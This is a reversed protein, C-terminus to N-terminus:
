ANKFTERYAWKPIDTQLVGTGYAPWDNADTCEKWRNLAKRMIAQGEMIASPVLEHIATVFPYQPEIVIFLFGDIPGGGAKQWGEGIFSEQLHYGYEAVSRGFAAESASESTKVDAALRLQENVIDPRTRCEIGTEEDIWYGSHEVLGGQTLRQLEPLRHAADRMFFAKDYDGSTLPIKGYANCYEVLDAWKNGRRDLPGKMVMSELREPELIAIHTAKGLDLSKSKKPPSSKAHLPSKSYLTWLQSRSVAAHNHYETEPQNSLIM